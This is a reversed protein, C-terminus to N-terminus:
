RNMARFDLPLIGAVKKFVSSFYKPDTYGVALAIEYLKMDTTLLLKKAHEVRLRKMLTGFTCGVERHIKTGLYEPTVSLKQAIEDLTVGQAYYEKMMSIARRVLISGAAEDSGSCMQDALCLLYENMDEIRYAAMINNLLDHGHDTLQGLDRGISLLAMALRMYAEKIDRPHYSQGDAIRGCFANVYRMLALSDQKGLAARCLSELEIPYMLMHPTGHKLEPYRMLKGPPLTLSYDFHAQMEKLVRHLQTLDDLFSVMALPQKHSLRALYPLFDHNFLYVLHENGGYNASVTILFDGYSVIESKGLRHAVTRWAERASEELYMLLLAVPENAQWQFQKQIYTLMPQNLTTENLLAEALVDAFTRQRMRAIARYEVLSRARALANVLEDMAVPKLLYESVGLKVAQQAYSFDSYASLFIAVPSFGQTQVKRPMEIGDMDPMRIDSIVVDPRLALLLEMGSLGNDAEGVVEDQASITHILHRLGERIRIEDEIIAITM